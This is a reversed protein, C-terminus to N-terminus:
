ERTARYGTLNLSLHLWLWCLAFAILFHSTQLWEAWPSLLRSPGGLVNRSNGSYQLETDSTSLSLSILVNMDVPARQLLFVGEHILPNWDLALIESVPTKSTLFIQPFLSRERFRKFKRRSFNNCRQASQNTCCPWCPHCTRGPSMALSSVAFLSWWDWSFDLLQETSICCPFIVPGKTIIYILVCSAHVLQSPSEWSICSAM